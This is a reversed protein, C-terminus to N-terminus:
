RRGYEDDVSRLCKERAKEDNIQGCQGRQWEAEPSYRSSACGPLLLAAVLALMLLSTKM